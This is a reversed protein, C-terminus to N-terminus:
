HTLHYLPRLPLLPAAAALWRQRAPSVLFPHLWRAGALRTGFRRRLARDVRACTDAWSTEGRSWALLPDLAAAASQFAMAMGNGTFPPIMAHHDGLSLAPSSASDTTSTEDAAAARGFALGAVACCSDPDIDAAALRAALAHLGSARLAAPLAGARGGAAPASDRHFLGCVNVRGDEVASVGVYAGRGLHLELGEATALGRAHVKLGVWPSRTEARRGCALVRGPRPAGADAGAGSDVNARHRTRLEGGAAVFAEALRADLAYRSLALAPAPLIQTRLRREGAFWAVRSHRRADAFFPALGLRDVTADDLGAIFEGCVRHRPYDGAESLTVTVGARRLALGLALGALGGGVIEVTRMGHANANLNVNM